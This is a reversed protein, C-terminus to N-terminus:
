FHNTSQCFRTVTEYTCNLLANKKEYLIDKCGSVAHTPTLTEEEEEKKKSSQFACILIWVKQKAEDM